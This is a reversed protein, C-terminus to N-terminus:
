FVYYYVSSHNPDRVWEPWLIAMFTPVPHCQSSISPVNNIVPIRAAKLYRLVRGLMVVM